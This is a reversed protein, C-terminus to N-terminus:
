RNPARRLFRRLWGRFTALPKPGYEAFLKWGYRTPDNVDFDLKETANADRWYYRQGLANGIALICVRDTVPEVKITWELPEIDSM